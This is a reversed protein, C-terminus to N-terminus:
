PRVCLVSNTNSKTYSSTTGTALTVLWAYNTNTSTTSSSWFVSSFSSVFNATPISSIGHEYAGYLEKQTPLRWGTQGNYTLSSCYSIADPWNMSTPSSTGGAVRSWQLGSAKDLYSCNSPTYTCTSSTTGNTTTVDRWMNSDGATSEVGGCANTSSWGSYSAPITSTWGYYDDITDWIGVVGDGLPLFEMNGSGAGAATIVGGGSTASLQVTTPDVVTVVYYTSANSFGTPVSGSSLLQVQNGVSLSSAPIVWNDSGSVPATVNYAPPAADYKALNATNRCNVPLMGTVGNIIAGARIDWANPSSGSTGTSGFINVGNAINTATLNTDGNGTYRKGDSGFYQFVASSKIQANFTPSTLDTGNSGSLPTSSSPYTGTIGGLTVGSKINGATLHAVTAAKYTTGDVVCTSAGDSSCHSYNTVCDRTGNQLAGSADRYQLDSCIQATTGSFIPVNDNASESAILVKPTSVQNKRNIDKVQFNFAGPHSLKPMVLQATTGDASPNILPLNFGDIVVITTARLNRGTVTVWTGPEAAVPSFSIVEAVGPQDNGSQSILRSYDKCSNLPLMEIVILSIFRKKM